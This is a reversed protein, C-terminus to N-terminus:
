PYNSRAVKSQLREYATTWANKQGDMDGRDYFQEAVKCLVMQKMTAPVNAPVGYGAVFTIVIGNIRNNSSPWTQDNKLYVAQRASDLAYVTTALTQQVDSADYYTISTISSVPRIPLPIWDGDPWESLTLTYTQSILATGTDREVQERAAAIFRRMKSDHYTDHEAIEVHDKAEALTVPETAPGSTRNLAYTTTM